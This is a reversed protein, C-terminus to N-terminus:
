RPSIPLVSVKPDVTAPLPAGTEDEFVIMRVRYLLSPHYAARLVSWLNNQDGLPLTVLELLLKEIGPDLAPSGARDFARHGQFFHLIRSIARLADPYAKYRAVFLVLANLFVPPAVAETAGDPSTRRYPDAPRLSREEEQNVVLMTVHDLRFDPVDVRESSPFVVQEPDTEVPTWGGSMRLHTNVEDRLFQIAADLMRRGM